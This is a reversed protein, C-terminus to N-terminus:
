RYLSNETDCWNIFILLVEILNEPGCASKFEYDQVICYIWDDESRNIRIISFPKNELETGKLNVFVKWGPNDLTRILFNSEGNVKQNSNELPWKEIWSIIEDM